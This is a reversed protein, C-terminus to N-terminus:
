HTVRILHVQLSKCPMQLPHPGMAYTELINEKQDQKLESILNWFNIGSGPVLCVPRVTAVQTVLM